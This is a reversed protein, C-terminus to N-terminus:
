RTVRATARVTDGDALAFTSVISLRLVWRHALLSGGPRTLHLRLETTDASAVKQKRRTITVTRGRARTTIKQGLAPAAATMRQRRTLTAAGKKQLRRILRENMATLEAEIAASSNGSPVSPPPPPPPPPPAPPPSSSTARVVQTISASGDVFDPLAATDDHYHVSIAYAGPAADATM